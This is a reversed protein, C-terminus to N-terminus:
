AYLNEKLDKGLIFKGENLIQLVLLNKRKVKSYFEDVSFIIPSLKVSFKHSLNKSLNDIKNELGKKLSKNKILCCIDLDSKSTENKKIVSGFIILGSVSKKLSTSIIQFIKKQFVHEESFLPIIANILFDNNRNLSFFHDRGGRSRNILGLEELASLAKIASRPHMGSLRAIQNGTLGDKIDMLVRIVAVHSWTRFIEDLPNNIMM